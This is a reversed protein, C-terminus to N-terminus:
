LPVDLPRALDLYLVAFFLLVFFSIVAAAIPILKRVDVTRRTVTEFAIVALHGGDLPPLPLLNVLGVFITLGVMLGIFEDWFGREVIQGATRGLGVVGVPSNEISRESGGTLADWLAGNFVMEFPAGIQKVLEETFYATTGAAGAAAEGIGQNERVLTPLVGLFGVVREGPRLSRLGDRTTASDVVGEPGVVAWGLRVDVEVEQGDRDVTFTTMEGANRRIIATASAWTEAPLGDIQTIEDGPRLTSGAAPSDAQIDDVVSVTTPAGFLLAFLFLTVFALPWHTAPGAAIVIARQWRPKNPYSRPEDEPAVDEYPNMGVIKVFGGAPIMKIGYETEGKRFSWLTPGFGIFFKTAKFGLLKAAAFHGAEHVMIVFLLALIFLLVGLSM